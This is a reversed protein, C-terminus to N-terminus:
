SLTKSLATLLKCNKLCSGGMEKCSGWYVKILELSRRKPITQGWQAGPVQVQTKTASHRGALGASTGLTGQSALGLQAGQPTDWPSHLQLGGQVREREGQCFQPGPQGDGWWLSCQASCDWPLRTHNSPLQEEWGELTTRRSSRWELIKM